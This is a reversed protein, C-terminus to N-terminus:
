QWVGVFCPRPVLLRKVKFRQPHGRLTYQGQSPSVVGTLCCWDDTLDVFGKRAGYDLIGDGIFRLFVPLSARRVALELVRKRCDYLNATLSAGSLMRRRFPVPILQLFSYGEWGFRARQAHRSAEQFNGVLFGDGCGLPGYLRDAKPIGSIVVERVMRFLQSPNGDVGWRVALYTIQNAMAIMELSTSPIKKWFVPKVDLGGFFHAGCSERFLGSAFTKKPNVAFGCFHLVRQLLPFAIVPIIIDDGYVCLDSDDLAHEELCCKALAWFILSELEFTCGNGMSSFKHYTRIPEEKKKSLTYRHSRFANAARFWDEPLLRRVLEYSVTDSASSLDVTALAGTLAGRRAMYTNRAQGNDLDVGVRMLRRRLAKGLGLQMFINCHPEVAIIRDILADKPVTTVRNGHVVTISSDLVSAPYDVGLVHRAWSPVCNIACRAYPLCSANAEPAVDFKNYSSTADTSVASTVGPGWRGGEFVEDLDLAGLVFAIKTQARILVREVQPSLAKVAGRQHMLLLANTESCVEECQVFKELANAKRDVRFDLGPYKRLFSVALYDKRFMQGSAYDLPEARAEAIEQWLGYKARLFLGLSRPTDLAEWLALASEIVKAHAHKRDLFGRKLRPRLKSEM